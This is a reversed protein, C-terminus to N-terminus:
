DCWGLGGQSGSSWVGQMLSTHYWVAGTTAHVSLMGVIRDSRMTHLTYYGPFAEPEDAHERHQGRQRRDV